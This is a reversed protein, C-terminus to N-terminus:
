QKGFMEKVIEEKMRKRFTNTKVVRQREVEKQIDIGKKMAIKDILCCELVNYKSDVDSIGKYIRGIHYMWYAVAALVLGIGLSIFILVESM